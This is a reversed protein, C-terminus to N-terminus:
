SPWPTTLTVRAARRSFILLVLRATRGAAGADDDVDDACTL